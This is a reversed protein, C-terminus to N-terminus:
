RPADGPAPRAPRARRSRVSVCARAARHETFRHHQPQPRDAHYRLDLGAAGAGASSPSDATAGLCFHIVELLSTKGSGNRSDKARSQESREALIVNFGPSFAVPKFSPRNATVREIVNM